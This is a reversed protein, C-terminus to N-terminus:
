EGTKLDNGVEVGWQLSVDPLAHEVREGVNHLLSDKRLVTRFKVVNICSSHM